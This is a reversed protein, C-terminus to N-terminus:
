CHILISTQLSRRKIKGNTAANMALATQDAGFKVSSANVSFDKVVNALGRLKGTGWDRYFPYLASSFGLAHGIEHM